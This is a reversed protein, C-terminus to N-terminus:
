FKDNIKQSQYLELPNRKTKKNANNPKKNEDNEQICRKHSSKDVVFEMTQGPQTTGWIVFFSFFIKKCVTKFFSRM